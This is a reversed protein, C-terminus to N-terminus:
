PGTTASPNADVAAGGGGNARRPEDAAAGARTRRAAADDRRPAGRAGAALAGLVDGRWRTAPSNVRRADVVISSRLLDRRASRRSAPSAGPRAEVWEAATM